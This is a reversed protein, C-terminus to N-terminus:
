YSVEAKAFAAKIDDAITEVDASAVAYRIYPHFHVGVVGVKGDGEIMAFNFAEADKM